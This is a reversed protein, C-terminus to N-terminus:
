LRKILLFADLNQRYYRPLRKLIQYRHEEYFGIATTNNVAVELVMLFGELKRVRDEAAQMLLTGLRNRRYRELVDITIIHGYGKDHLEVVVFGAIPVKRRAESKTEVPTGKGVSTGEPETEAIICFSRKRQIYSQLESRSYAIGPEFCEHDIRYLEEFDASRYDRLRFVSPTKDQSRMPMCCIEGESM